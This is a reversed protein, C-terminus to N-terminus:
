QILLTGPDINLAKALLKVAEVLKLLQQQQLKQMERIAKIEERLLDIQSQEM